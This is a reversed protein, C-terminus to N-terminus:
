ICFETVDQNEQTEQELLAKLEILLDSYGNRGRPPQDPRRKFRRELHELSEPNLIDSGKLAAPLPPRSIEPGYCGLQNDIIAICDTPSFRLRTLAALLARARKRHFWLRPLADRILKAFVSPKKMEHFFAIVNDSFITAKPRPPRGAKTDLIHQSLKRIDMLKDPNPCAKTVILQVLVKHPRLISLANNADFMGQMFAMSGRAAHKVEHRRMAIELQSTASLDHAWNKHIILFELELGPVHDANDIAHILTQTGAKGLKTFSNLRIKLRAPCHPSILATSLALASKDILAHNGFHIRCNNPFKGSALARCILSLNELGIDIGTCDISFEPVETREIRIGDAHFLFSLGLEPWAPLECMMQLLDKVGLDVKPFEVVSGEAYHGQALLQLVAAPKLSEPEVLLSSELSSM